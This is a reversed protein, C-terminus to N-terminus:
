PKNRLELLWKTVETSQENNQHKDPHCLKILAIVQEQSLATGASGSSRKRSVRLESKLQQVTAKLSENERLLSAHLEADISVSEPNKRAQMEKDLALQLRAVALDGKLLKYGKESKFCVQCSRMYPAEQGFPYSCSECSVIPWDAVEDYASM